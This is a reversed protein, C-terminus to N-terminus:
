PVAWRFLGAKVKVGHERCFRTLYEEAVDYQLGKSCGASPRCALQLADRREKEDLRGDGDTFQHLLADLRQLLAHENAVRRRELEFDLVVEAGDEDLGVLRAERLLARRDAASCYADFPRAALMESFLERPDCDAPRPTPAGPPAAEEKSLRLNLAPAYHRVIAELGGGHARDLPEMQWGRGLRILRLAEMADHTPFDEDLEWRHLERDAATDRVAVCAREVQGFNFRKSPDYISVCVVVELVRPDLRDLDLALSEQEEATDRRGSWVVAGDASRPNGHFVFSAPDSVTGTRDLLLAALDLDASVWGKGCGVRVLLTRLDARAEGKSINVGM